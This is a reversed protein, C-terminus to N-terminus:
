ANPNYGILKFAARRSVVLAVINSITAIDKGGSVVKVMDGHVKRNEFGGEAIYEVAAGPKLTAGTFRVPGVQMFLPMVDSGIGSEGPLFAMGATQAAAEVIFDKPLADEEEPTKDYSVSMKKIRTT